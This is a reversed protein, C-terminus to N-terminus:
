SLRPPFRSRSSYRPEYSKRHPVGTPYGYSSPTPPTERKKYRHGIATYRDCIFLMWANFLEIFEEDTVTVNNEDLTDVADDLAQDTPEIWSTASDYLTNYGGAFLKLLYEQMQVPANAITFRPSYDSGRKVCRNYNKLAVTCDDAFKTREPGHFMQVHRQGAALCFYDYLSNMSQEVTQEEMTKIAVACLQRVASIDSADSM